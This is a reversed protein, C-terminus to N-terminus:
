EELMKEVYKLYELTEDAIVKDIENIPTFSNLKEIRDKTIELAKEKNM